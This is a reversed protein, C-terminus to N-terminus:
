AQYKTSGCAADDPGRHALAACTDNARARLSDANAGNRAAFFGTIGYM